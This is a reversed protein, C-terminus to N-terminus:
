SVRHKRKSKAAHARLVVLEASQAALLQDKAELQEQQQQLQQRLRRRQKRQQRKMQHELRQQQATAQARLWQSHQLASTCWDSKECHKRIQQWVPMGQLTLCPMAICSLAAFHM